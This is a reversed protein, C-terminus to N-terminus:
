FGDVFQISEKDKNQVWTNTAIGAKDQSIWLKGRNDRKEERKQVEIAHLGQHKWKKRERKKTLKKKERREEKKKRCNM